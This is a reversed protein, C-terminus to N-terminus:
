ARVVMVAMVAMAAMQGQVTEAVEMVVMVVPGGSVLLAALVRLAELEVM